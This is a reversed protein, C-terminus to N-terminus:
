DGAVSLVLVVTVGGGPTQEVGLRGGAARALAPVSPGVRGAPGGPGRGGDPGGPEGTRAGAILWHRAEPMESPGRDVVRLEVRALEGVPVEPVASAGPFGLRGPGGPGPVADVRVLVRVGPPNRRIAHDVLAALAAELRRSDAAVVPLGVPMLVSVAASRGGGRLVRRVVDAVQVHRADPVCGGVRDTWRLRELETRSLPQPGVMGGSGFRGPGGPGGVAPVAGPATAGGPRGGGSGKLLWAGASAGARARPGFGGLARAGSAVYDWLKGGAM